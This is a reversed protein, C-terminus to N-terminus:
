AEASSPFGGSVVNSEEEEQAKNRGQIVAQREAEYNKHSAVWAEKPVHFILRVADPPVCDSCHTIWSLAADDYMDAHHVGFDWDELVAEHLAQVIEFMEAKFFERSDNVRLERLKEHVAIETHDSDSVLIETEVEFPTPVGTTYLDSARARGGNKSRGVKYIGPMSPNSLVYVYGKM